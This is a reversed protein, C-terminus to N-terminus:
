NMSVMQQKTIYSQSWPFPTNNAGATRQLDQSMSERGPRWPSGCELVLESTQSPIMVLFVPFGKKVLVINSNFSM